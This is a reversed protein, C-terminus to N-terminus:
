ARRVAVDGLKPLRCVLDHKAVAKPMYVSHNPFQAPPDINQCARSKAIPILSGSTKTIPIAAPGFPLEPNKRNSDPWHTDSRTDFAFSAGM